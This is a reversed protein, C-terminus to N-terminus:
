EYEELFYEPLEHECVSFSNNKVRNQKPTLLQLNFECHLGCVLNHTLPIIHDVQMQHYEAELYFNKIIEIDAWVPTAGKIQARRYSSYYREKSRNNKRWERGAIRRKEINESKSYYEDRWKKYNNKGKESKRYNRERQKVSEFNEERYRKQRAKDRELNKIKWNRSNERYIDPNEKRYKETQLKVKEKNNIYHEHRKTKVCDKCQHRRIGKAKNKFHFDEISKEKKCLKCIRTLEM